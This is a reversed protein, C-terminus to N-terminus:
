PVLKIYGLEELTLPICKLLKHQISKIFKREWKRYEKGQGVGFVTCAHNKPIKNWGFKKKDKLAKM